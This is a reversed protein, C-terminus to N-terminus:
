NFPNSFAEHHLTVDDTLTGLFAILAEKETESLNLKLAEGDNDHDILHPDLRGDENNLGTSYHEIVEELSVLSGDHMYPPSIAVNILSPAKFAGKFRPDLYTAQAGLDPEGNLSSRVGNNRPIDVVFGRTFHCGACTFTPHNFFIEKGLNEVSTFNNFPTKPDQHIDLGDQFRTNNSSISRVFQALAKALTGKTIGENPFAKEFLVTYYPTATLLGLLSDLDMGMEVHDQIPTVVQEELSAARDDWFFRNSAYFRSNILRMSHRGTRENEFGKSFQATDSFGFEQIHCSACSISNNKSLLKDYFLVRGLTAGWPTIANTDPHNDQLFLIDNQERQVAGLNAYDFPTDPLTPGSTAKVVDSPSSDEKQCGILVAVILVSLGTLKKM